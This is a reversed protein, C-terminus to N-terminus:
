SHPDTRGPAPQAALEALETEVLGAEVLEAELEALRRRLFRQEPATPGAALARGFAAAAEAPRRLRRLLDARAIHLALTPPTGPNELEDLAVAPGRVEAVAVARNVTVALSPAVEDLLDYLRLIEDWDPDGSAVHHAALAAELQYRDALGASRRLSEDLLQLGEAIEDAHWRSREQDALLVLGGDEDVRAERRAHTLMLLALLGQLTPEGPLLQNLLRALRVAEGCLDVRVLDADPSGAYGATFVLHVVAAVPALRAPLDADSPVRYPIGARAIKQRTRVLRKAATDESILLVRAIDAVSLGCVTRLTLAVQADLELAPHCCTFMLRLLDDDVSSRDGDPPEDDRMQELLAVAEEEKGARNRERRLVDLAKRRAVTLLWARPEAPIGASPWTDLAAITAEQVADEARMLDGLNRALVAVVRGGEVRVVEALRDDIPTTM